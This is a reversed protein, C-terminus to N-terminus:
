CIRLYHGQWYKRVQKQLGRRAQACTSFVFAIHVVQSLFRKPASPLDRSKYDLTRTTILASTGLLALIEANDKARRLAHAAPWPTPFMGGAHLCVELEVGVFVM